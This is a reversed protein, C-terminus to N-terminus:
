AIDSSDGVLGMWFSAGTMSSVRREGEGNDSLSFVSSWLQANTFTENAIDIERLTHRSM